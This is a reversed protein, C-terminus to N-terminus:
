FHRRCLEEMRSAISNKAACVGGNYLCSFHSLLHQDSNLPLTYQTAQSLWIRSLGTYLSDKNPARWKARTTDDPDQLSAGPFPQIHRTAFELVATNLLVWDM